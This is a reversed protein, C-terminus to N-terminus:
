TMSPGAGFASAARGSLITSPLSTTAFGNVDRTPMMGVQRPSEAGLVSPGSLRGRFAFLVFSSVDHDIGPYQPLADTRGRDEHSGTQGTWRRLHRLGDRRDRRRRHGPRHRLDQLFVRRDRGLPQLLGLVAVPEMEAAAVVAPAKARELFD